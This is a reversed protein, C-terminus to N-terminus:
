EPFRAVADVYSHRTTCSKASSIFNSFGLLYPMNPNNNIIRNIMNEFKQEYVENGNM